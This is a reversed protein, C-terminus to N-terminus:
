AQDGRDITADTHRRSAWGRGMRRDHANGLEGPMRTGRFPRWQGVEGAGRQDALDVLAQLAPLGHAPHIARWLDGVLQPRLHVPEAPATRPAARPDTTPP